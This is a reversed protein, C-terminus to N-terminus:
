KLLLSNKHDNISTFDKEKMNVEFNGKIPSKVLKNKNLPRAYKM